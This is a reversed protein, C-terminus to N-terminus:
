HCCNSQPHAMLWPFHISIKSNQGGSTDLIRACVNTWRLNRAPLTSTHSWQAHNSCNIVTKALLCKLSLPLM